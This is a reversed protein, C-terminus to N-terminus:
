DCTRCVTSDTVTVAGYADYTYSEVPTGTSDTITEVSGLANQHYYYTQGGRDM